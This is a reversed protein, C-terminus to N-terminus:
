LCAGFRPVSWLDTGDWLESGTEQLSSCLANLVDVLILPRSGLAIREASRDRIDVNPDGM